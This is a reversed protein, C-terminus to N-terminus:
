MNFHDLFNKEKETLSGIGYEEIKDLIKNLINEKENVSIIDKNKGNILMNQDNLEEDFFLTESINGPMYYSLIDDKKMMYYFLVRKDNILTEGIDVSIIEPDYDSKFAIVITNLNQVVYRFIKLHKNTVLYNSCFNDVEELNKFASTIYILYLNM